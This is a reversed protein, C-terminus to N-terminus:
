LRQLLFRQTVPSLHLEPHHAGDRLVRGERLAVEGARKADAETDEKSQRAQSEARAKVRNVDALASEARAERDQVAGLRAEAEVAKAQAARTKDEAEGARWRSQSRAEFMDRAAALGKQSAAVQTLRLPRNPSSVM